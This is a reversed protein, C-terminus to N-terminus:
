NPQYYGKCKIKKKNKIFACIWKELSALTRFGRARHCLSQICGILSEASNSTKPLHLEPYHLYTQFNQYCGVFGSLCKRLDLSKTEWEIEKIRRICEQTTKKDTSTLVQKILEYVEQGERRHRSWRGKSRRSQARAILHFQCRQILWGKQKAYNVLGRHGDCVIAKINVKISNPMRDLAQQWGSCTETGKRIYPSTIVAEEEEAKRILIFYFTHWEKQIYRVMADAIVILDGEIPLEPWPTRKIFHNLSRSLRAQLKRETAHKVRALSSLSPVEHRLYRILLNKQERKRKRGRKKKYIRWTKGCIVCQRRRKGYKKIEGRCCPSKAHLKIM